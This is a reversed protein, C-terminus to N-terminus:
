STSSSNRTNFNHIKIIFININLVIPRWKNGRGNESCYFVKLTFNLESLIKFNWFFKLVLIIVCFLAKFSLYQNIVQVINESKDRCQTFYFKIKSCIQKTKFFIMYNKVVLWQFVIVQHPYFSFLKINKRKVFNIIYKKKFMFFAHNIFCTTM